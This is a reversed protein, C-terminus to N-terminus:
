KHKSPEYYLEDTEILSILEAVSMRLLEQKSITRRRYKTNKNHNVDQILYYCTVNPDSIESVGEVKKLRVEM